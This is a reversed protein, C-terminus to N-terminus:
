NKLNDYVLKLHAKVDEADLRYKHVLEPAIAYVRGLIYGLNDAYEQYTSSRPKLLKFLKDEKDKSLFKYKDLFGKKEIFPLLSERYLNDKVQKLYKKNMWKLKGVDFVANSLNIRELSFINILEKKSLIERNDGPSWGLLALFNFLAEPLFGEERYATVSVAGHRKSLRTRDEGLILPLHIFEPVKFELLEYLLVQKPTNSIHDEGRIIHTIGLTADDVVCAFNYTPTGDSKIIVTDEFGEKFEIEGRLSDKFKVQSKDTKYRLAIGKDTKEEYISKKQLLKQAYDRYIDFRQSQHIVEGDWDIGLWKLSGLIDDLFFRESRQIDTDEIRLIFKGKNRRAFLFNFLATRAGGVHLFGTPSPAFRVKVDPM